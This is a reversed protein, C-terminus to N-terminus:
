CTVMCSLLEFVLVFVTKNSKSGYSFKIRVKSKSQNRIVTLIHVNGSLQM